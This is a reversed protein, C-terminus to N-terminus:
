RGIESMVANESEARQSAAFLNTNEVAPAIQAALRELVRRSTEGYAGLRRSRVHIAGVVVGKCILPTTISSRLGTAYEHEGPFRPDDTVGDRILTQRMTAVHETPSQSGRLPIVTGVTRSPIMPGSVYKVSFTGANHDIVNIVVRDFDVLKKLEAAFREYVLDIDLTSTIIRAVEDVVAMEEAGAVRQDYLRANAIAGSIQDGVSRALSLSRQSYANVDRSVLNLAAIVRSRNVLPVGLFSRDGAQLFPKLSPFQEGIELKDGQAIIGQGSHVVRETFTGRLPVVTGRGRDPIEPGDIYAMTMSGQESDVLNVTIWDFPVLKRFEQAFAEYVEDIESSSSIVRGIEAMVANQSEARQSAEFLSANEIAPAIQRALRELIRQDRAGYANVLSSRLGITGVIRSQSILPVVISSRFGLEMYEGDSRFRRDAGIDPRVLATGTELVYQTQSGEMPRVDGTPHASRQPGHDYRTVNVGADHDIVHVSARDFDVLKKLEGAFRDYVEDIVLTSTVIRAVEDVLAMEEMSDQLQRLLESTEATPVIHDSAYGNTKSTDIDNEAVCGLPGLGQRRQLYRSRWEGITHSGDSIVTLLREKLKGM